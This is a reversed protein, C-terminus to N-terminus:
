SVADRAADCYDPGNAASSRLSLLHLAERHIERYTLIDDVFPQRRESCGQIMSVYILNSWGTPAHADLRALQHTIAKAGTFPHPVV